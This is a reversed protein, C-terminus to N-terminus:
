EQGRRSQSDEGGATEQTEAGSIAQVGQRNRRGNIVHIAETIVQDLRERDGSLELYGLLAEFGTAQKYKRPDVNRPHSTTRHNRGRKVLRIEEPTLFDRSLEKVARSQGEASVYKVAARHLRDANNMGNEVLMRRIAVEYVADGLFALTSTNVNDLNM